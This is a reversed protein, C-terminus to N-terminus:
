CLCRGCLTNQAEQQARRRDEGHKACCRRNRLFVAIIRDLFVADFRVRYGLALICLCAEVLDVARLAGSALRDRMEVAGLGLVAQMKDSRAM